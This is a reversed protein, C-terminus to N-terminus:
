IERQFIIYPQAITHNEIKKIQGHFLYDVGSILKINKIDEAIKNIFEEEEPIGILDRLDNDSLNRGISVVGFVLNKSLPIAQGEIPKELLSEV